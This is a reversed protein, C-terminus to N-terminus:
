TFGPHGDFNSQVKRSIDGNVLSSVQTSSFESSGRSADSEDETVVSDRVRDTEGGRMTSRDVVNGRGRVGMTEISSSVDSSYVHYQPRM